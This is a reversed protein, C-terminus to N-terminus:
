RRAKLSMKYAKRYLEKAKQTDKQIGVGFEYMLGLNICGRVSGMEYAKKYLEVAKSYDRKVGNGSAYMVGLEYYESASGMKCAKPRLEFVTEYDGEEYARIGNELITKM